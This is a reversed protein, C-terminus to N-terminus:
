KRKAIKKVSLTKGDMAAASLSAAILSVLHVEPNRKMIRKVVFQSNPQDNAAIAAAILSIREHERKNSDVFAPLPQWETEKEEQENNKNSERINKPKRLLRELIGLM